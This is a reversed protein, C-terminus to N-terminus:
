SAPLGYVDIWCWASLGDVYRDILGFYAALHESPVQAMARPSGYWSQAEVQIGLSRLDAVVPHDLPAHLRPRWGGAPHADGARDMLRRIRRIYSEPTCCRGHPQLAGGECCGAMYVAQRLVQNRTGVMCADWSRSRRGTRANRVNNDGGEIAIIFRDQALGLPAGAVHFAVWQYELRYSM